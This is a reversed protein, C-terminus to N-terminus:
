SESGQVARKKTGKTVQYTKKFYLEGHVTPKFESRGTHQFLLKGDRQAQRLTMDLSTPITLGVSEATERIEDLKFPEAGHQSYVYAAISVANDSPKGEPFKAFFEAADQPSQENTNATSTQQAEKAKTSHGTVYETLLELAAAQIAPELDKIVGNVEQLRRVREQFVVSDMVEGEKKKNSHSDGGRDPIHLM